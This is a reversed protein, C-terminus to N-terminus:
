FDAAAECSRCMFSFHTSNRCFLVVITTRYEWIGKIKAPLIAFCSFHGTLVEPVGDLM